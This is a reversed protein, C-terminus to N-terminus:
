ASRTRRCHSTRADERRASLSAVCDVSGRRLAHFRDFGARRVPPDPCCWTPPVGHRASSPAGTRLRRSQRGAASRAPRGARRTARASAGLGGWVTTAERRLADYRPLVIPRVHVSSGCALCGEQSLDPKQNGESCSRERRPGAGSWCAASVPKAPVSFRCRRETAGPSRAVAGARGANRRREDLYWNARDAAEVDGMRRSFAHATSEASITAVIVHQHKM